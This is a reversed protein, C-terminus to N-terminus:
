GFKLDDRNLLLEQLPANLNAFKDSNFLMLPVEYTGDLYFNWLETFPEHQYIM